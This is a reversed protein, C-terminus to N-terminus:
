RGLALRAALFPPLGADLIKQQAVAIDYEVRILRYKGTETDYLGYSALPIGDRPQGVSGINIIYRCDDKFNIAANETESLVGGQEQIFITAYHSHGVFCHPEKFSNFSVGAESLLFIYDWLQPHMPTSHVYFFGDRSGHLPLTSLFRANEGTLVKKTWAVAERAHTNFYKVDTKNVAAFDHNGAICCDTLNRLMAICENPNAGYGVIDGLFIIEDAQQAAVSESVAQFAELNSHIDSLLAVKM